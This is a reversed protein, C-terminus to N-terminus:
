KKLEDIEKRLQDLENDAEKRESQISRWYLYAAALLILLTGPTSKVFDVVVGVYPLDFVVKGKIDRLTIPDDPTNNADGQTIVTNGDLEMIRHVVLSSGSAFVVVDGVQYHDASKVFILDDVSLEPEMSGSVVVAMGVGFPMPLANRGLSQANWHYIGLGVALAIVVLLATQLVTRGINKKAPTKTQNTAKM